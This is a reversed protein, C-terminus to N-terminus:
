NIRFRICFVISVFISILEPTPTLWSVQNGGLEEFQKVLREVMEEDPGDTEMSEVTEQTRQNLEDLTASIRDNVGSGSSSSPRDRGAANKSM